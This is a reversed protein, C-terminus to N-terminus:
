TTASTNITLQKVTEFALCFKLRTDCPRHLSHGSHRIWWYQRYTKTRDHCSFVGVDADKLKNYDKKSLYKTASISNVRMQLSSFFVYTSPTFYPTKFVRQVYSQKYIAQLKRMHGDFKTQLELMRTQIM